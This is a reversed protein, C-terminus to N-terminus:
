GYIQGKSTRGLLNLLYVVFLVAVMFVVSMAAAFPWDNAGTAQQYIYLPMYILRAGGILTQTVFATVCAAYVLICGAIVGPLSLPLTVRWFTRWDGAGLSASADFLNRDVRTLTAMIPLVMLPLQVQALVMIVGTETYLLRLPTDILGIAILSKNIVGQSGLIVIWAFTRVVVSTLIPLIIVFLLAAQWRPTLRIALWALPYGFVLCVLTSQFGLWLTNWLIGLTFRDGLFRAYQALTLTHTEPAAYFSWATLVALPALFFLVFFAGLPLALQWEPHGNATRAAM